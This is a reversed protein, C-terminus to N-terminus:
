VQWWSKLMGCVIFGEVIRDIADISHCKVVTLASPNPHLFIQLHTLCGCAHTGGHQKPLSHIITLAHHSVM